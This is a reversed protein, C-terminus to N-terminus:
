TKEPSRCISSAISGPICPRGLIAAHLDRVQDDTLQGLTAKQLDPDIERQSSARYAAQVQQKKQDSFGKYAWELSKLLNAKAKAKDSKRDQGQAAKLIREAENWNPIRPSSM